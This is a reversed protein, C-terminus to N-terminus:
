LKTLHDFSLRVSTYQSLESTIDLTIGLQRCLESVIYLGMGTSGGLRRGNTGTFGRETIRRIEHAPIGIGSDEVQIAGDDATMTVHCGPCYKACNILLQKLIFGLSKSDTHVTFDGQLEVSIGAAILLEMQSKVAEDMVEAVRIERIQIDKESSRMRAYYLISETLNDARKLERKLKRIDGDNSLILSCATLPTKIEHIWSEVYECYENKDRQAQEVISIASRSVAKMIGFYQKEVAGIPPPLAEGLLYKDPLEEMIRELKKLKAREISYSVCLWVLVILLLLLEAMWILLADIEASFMFVGLMLAGIALFSLTVAKSHVFERLRM